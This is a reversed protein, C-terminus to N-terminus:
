PLPPAIIRETGYWFLRVTGMGDVNGFVVNTGPKIHQNLWVQAASVGGQQSDGAPVGKTPTTIGPGTFETYFWGTTGVPIPIIEPTQETM